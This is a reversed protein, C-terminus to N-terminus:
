ITKRMTLVFSAANIENKDVSISGGFNEITKRVIHLGVGTHGSKGYYFGEDFIKDIIENPIGSGNDRFKITCINEKSSIKIDIQTAKGHMISNTVLNSFVSNLTEDAFVKCKGSINFKMDPFDLVLKNLLDNISIEELGVNEDIFTEYRRYSAIVDLSKDARKEIEDLMKFNSRTKYLKIASKIVIFDNSLDHRIIKNLMKLRERGIKVTEEAKKRENIENELQTNTEILETNQKKIEAISNCLILASNIRAILEIPEIPKCIYDIAGAQLATNLNNASTMRGTAMIIPIDKTLDDKKLAKITEIGDMVPMEWDSIIIDPLFKRAVCIGMKGDLAQIIRYDDAKLTNTIINIFRQEDDIVLITTKNTSKM